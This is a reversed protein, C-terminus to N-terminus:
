RNRLASDLDGEGPRDHVAGCEPCQAATLGRLSYGCCICRGETMSAFRSSFRWVFWLTWCVLLSYGVLMAIWHSMLAQGPDIDWFSSLMPLATRSILVFAFILCALIRAEAPRMGGHELGRLLRLATTLDTTGSM